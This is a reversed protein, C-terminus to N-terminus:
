RQEPDVGSRLSAPVTATRRSIARAVGSRSDVDLKRLVREVHRRVTHWSIGLRGAIAKDSEGEALLRAIEMERETLDPGLASARPFHQLRVVAFADRLPGDVGLLVMSATVADHELRPVSLISRGRCLHNSPVGQLLDRARLSADELFLARADPAIRQMVREFAATRHVYRGRTDILATADDEADLLQIAQWHRNEDRAVTRLAARLVPEMCRFVALQRADLTDGVDKTNDAHLHARLHRDDIYIGGGDGALHHPFYFENYAVSKRYKETWATGAARYRSRRTYSSLRLRHRVHVAEDIHRWNRAWDEFVGAEYGIAYTAPTVGLGHVDFHASKAPLLAMVQSLVEVRWDHLTGYDFPRVCADLTAAFKALERSTFSFHEIRASM